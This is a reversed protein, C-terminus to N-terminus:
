LITLGLVVLWGNTNQLNKDAWKRAVQKLGNKGPFWHLGLPTQDPDVNNALLIEIM